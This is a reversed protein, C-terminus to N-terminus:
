TPLPTTARAGLNRLFNQIKENAETIVKMNQEGKETLEYVRERQNWFGRIRAGAQQM